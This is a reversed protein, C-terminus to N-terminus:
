NRLAIRTLSWLDEHLERENWGPPDWGFATDQDLQMLQSEHLIKSRMSYMESRRSATIPGPAYTEFFSQFIKTSGPVEHQRIDRCQECYNSHTVGRGTLAEVASVHSAFSASMSMSWQRSAMDMWFAARDFKVRTSPSLRQYCYLLGDLDSPVRLGRGDHGLNKYYDETALEEIRENTPDSLQEIVPNDLKAIFFEAGM